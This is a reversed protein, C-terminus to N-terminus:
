RRPLPDPDIWDNSGPKTKGRGRQRGDALLITRLEAEETSGSWVSLTFVEGAPTTIELEYPVAETGAGSGESVTGVLRAGTASIGEMRGDALRTVTYLGAMGTAPLATFVVSRGDGLTAGGGVGAANAVGTLRSGDEAALELSEGVLEGVLWADVSLDVGDCLYARAPRSAEGAQGGLVVAVFIDPESTEGVFTAGEFIATPTAPQAMARSSPRAVGLAAALLALNLRRRDLRPSRVHSAGPTAPM